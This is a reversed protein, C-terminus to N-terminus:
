DKVCRVAFGHSKPYRYMGALKEDDRNLFMGYACGQDQDCESSSWFHAACGICFFGDHDAFGSPIASFGYADNGNGDAGDDSHEWMGKSKLMTALSIGPIGGVVGFLTEFEAQSPLHWGQPCSKKAVNWTYLGGFSSAEDDNYNWKEGAALEAHSLRVMTGFALNEAMWVQDGIKVTKYVRGDRPDIFTGFWRQRENIRAVALQIIEDESMAGM